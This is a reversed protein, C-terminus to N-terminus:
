CGTEGGTLKREVKMLTGASMITRRGRRAVLVLLSVPSFIPVPSVSSPKLNSTRPKRFRSDQVEFM